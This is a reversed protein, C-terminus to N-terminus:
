AWLNRCWRPFSAVADSAGGRYVPRGQLLRLYPPVFSCSICSFQEHYTRLFLPCYSGHERVPGFITKGRLPRESGRIRFDSAAPERYHRLKFKPERDSGSTRDVRAQHWMRVHV